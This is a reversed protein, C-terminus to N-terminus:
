QKKYIMRIIYIKKVISLFLKTLKPTLVWAGREWWTFTKQPLCGDRILHKCDQKSFGFAFPQSSSGSQDDVYQVSGLVRAESVSPNGILARLLQECMSRVGDEENRLLDAKVSKAFAELCDQFYSTDWSTPLGNVSAKLCPQYVGGEKVVRIVQGHDAQSFIEMMPALSPIDMGSGVNLKGSADFLFASMSVAPTDAPRAYLGFYLFHHKLGNDDGIIDFISRLVSGRWGIDVIACSDGSMLGCNRFYDQMEKRRLLARDLVQTQVAEDLFFEEIAKLNSWGLPGDVPINHRTLADAVLNTTLDARELLDAISVAGAGGALWKLAREDIKRLGALHVVQRGSFLYGLDIKLDIHVAIQKAIRLMVQGDRAVFWIKTVGREKATKLVWAIYAWLIPGAVGAAIDRMTEEAPSSASKNARLWRGADALQSSLGHSSERHREMEM